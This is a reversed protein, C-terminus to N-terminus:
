GKRALSALPITAAHRGGRGPANSCGCTRAHPNLFVLGGGGDCDITGGDLLRCTEDPLFLKLGNQRLTTDGEHPGSEPSFQSVFGNCGGSALTLRFGADALGSMRVIRLMFREAADTVSIAM